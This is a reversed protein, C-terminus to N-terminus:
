KRRPAPYQRELAPKGLEMLRLAVASRSVPFGGGAEIREAIDDLYRIRDATLRLTLIEDKKEGAPLKPRAM